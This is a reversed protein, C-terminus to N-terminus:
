CECVLRWRGSRAEEATLNVADRTEVARQGHQASQNLMLREGTLLISQRVDGDVISSILCNAPFELSDFGECALVTIGDTLRFVERILLANTMKKIGRTVCFRSFKFM